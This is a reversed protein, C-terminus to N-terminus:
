EIIENLAQEAESVYKAFEPTNRIDQNRIDKEGFSVNM